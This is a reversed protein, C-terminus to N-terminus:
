RCRYQKGPLATILDKLELQLLAMALASSSLRTNAALADVHQPQSNRLAQLVQQEEAPLEDFLQAQRVPSSEHQKWGMVEAVDDASEILTALQSRILANCGQAQPDCPRGPVCFVERSYGAALRATILAGGERPTEVVITADCMGAIIRNRLPFNQAEFPDTHRFETLLGGNCMMQRAVAAHRSPYIRNLGHALVAITPLGEQMASQHAVGDIGYALGSVVTAGYPKLGRILQETFRRGEDTCRRTGVVAVFREANLNMRGRSYLIVPADAIHLLRGPYSSDQIFHLDIQHRTVFKWESEALHWGSFNRIAEARKRSIGPVATLAKLSAGFVSQADGFHSVLNRALVDGIGEVLTLAIQCIRM